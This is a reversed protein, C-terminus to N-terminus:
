IINLKKGRRLQYEELTLNNETLYEALEKGVYRLHWPEYHYGTIEVKDKPYRLIFGYNQCNAHLWKTVPLDDTLEDIYKGDIVTACDIALGTEHESTGPLAVKEYALDGMEQLYYKLVEKQYDRSRYGSDIWLEYGEKKADEKLKNFASAVVASVRLPTNPIFSQYYPNDLLIINDPTFDEPLPHNKNVLIDYDM